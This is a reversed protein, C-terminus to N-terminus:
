LFFMTRKQDTACFTKSIAKLQEPGAGAACLQAGRKSAWHAYYAPTALGVSRNCRCYLYTSWYAILQIESMKLGIEDYVLTYKTPKATGQIAVHSNLYFDNYQASTIGDAFSGDTCIGPAPNIFNKDADEYFLRTHHNKQCIIIAVKVSDAPYGMLELARKISPLEDNIVQMFQGESVGDRFALITEPMKGGNRDKFAKLLVMVADDLGNIMEQRSNQSSLHAAYQSAHNDLSAVVAAVSPNESGPEPHSVDLGMLMCPKDFLWSLSAPPEQWSSYSAAASASLRGILTHNTGGLKSNLKLSIQQEFGRPPREINKWKICQTVLGISDGQLKIPGYINDQCM